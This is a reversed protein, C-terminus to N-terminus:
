RQTRPRYDKRIKFRGLEFSISLLFNNVLLRQDVAALDFYLKVLPPSQEQDGFLSRIRIAIVLAVHTEGGHHRCFESLQQLLKTERNLADLEELSNVSCEFIVDMPERCLKDLADEITKVVFYNYSKERLYGTVVVLRHNKPIAPHKALDQEYM